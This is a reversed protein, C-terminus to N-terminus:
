NSVARAGPTKQTQHPHGRPYEGAGCTTHFSDSLGHHTMLLFSSKGSVGTIRHRFYRRIQEVQHYAGVQVRYGNALKLLPHRGLQYVALWNCVSHETTVLTQWVLVACCFSPM